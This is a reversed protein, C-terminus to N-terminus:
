LKKDLLGVSGGARSLDSTRRVYVYLYFVGVMLLGLSASRTLVVTLLKGILDNATLQMKGAILGLLTQPIDGILVDGGATVLLALRGLVGGGAWLMACAPVTLLFLKADHQWHYVPLISLPAIAAIALMSREPTIRSRLVSLAWILLLAGCIVYTATNYIRPNKWFVSLVSQMQVLSDASGGSISITGAANGDVQTSFASMNLHMEGLWHPSVHVVWGLAPLSLAVTVVLTQFARKRYLGGALLFYLWIFGTDHPKLVLSLAFCLIGAYVFRERLFCWVGIVCFGIAIAASNGIMFMWVSNTLLFGILSGAVVPAYESGIDWMLLGALILSMASVCMWVIHGADYGLMAFPVTFVFANPLYFYRTMITRDRVPAESSERGEAYYVREVDGANYPDGNQLLCKASYYAVKFDGMAIKSIHEWGLGLLLFMLAGFLLLVLGDFKANKYNTMGEQAHLAAPDGPTRSVGREADQVQSHQSEQM